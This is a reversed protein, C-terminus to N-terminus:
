KRKSKKDLYDQAIDGNGLSMIVHHTTALIIDGKMLRRDQKTHADDTYFNFKGTKKLADVMNGTYVSTSVKIGLSNCIAVIAESCDTNCNDKVKSVNWHTDKLEDIISTRDNQGYGIHDNKCIAAMKKAAKEGLKRDKFRIVYNQGFNYWDGTKVEWGTQDGKKGNASRHESQSAWGCKVAM